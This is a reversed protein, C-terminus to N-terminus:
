LELQAKIDLILQGIELNRSAHFGLGMRETEVWGLYDAIAKPDDGELALRFVQPLYEYYEDRSWPAESIGIPDWLYFLIEDIRQYLKLEQPPLKKRM